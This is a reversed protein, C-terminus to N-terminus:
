RGPPLTEAAGLVELTPLPLGAGALDAAFLPDTLRRDLRDRSRWLEVVLLADDGQAVVALERGPRTQRTTALERYAASLEAPDGRYTFLALVAAAGRRNGDADGDGDVALPLPPPLPREDVLSQRPIHRV